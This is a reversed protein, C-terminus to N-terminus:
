TALKDMDPISYSGAKITAKISPKFEDPISDMTFIGEEYAYKVVKSLTDFYKAFSSDPPRPYLLILYKDLPERPCIYNGRSPETFYEWNRVKEVDKDVEEPPRKKPYYDSISICFGYLPHEPTAPISVGECEISRILLFYSEFVLHRDGTVGWRANDYDIVSKFFCYLYKEYM